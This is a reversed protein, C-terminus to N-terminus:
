IGVVLISRHDKGDLYLFYGNVFNLCFTGILSGAHSWCRASVGFSSVRELMLGGKANVSVLSAVSGDMGDTEHLIGSLKKNINSLEERIREMRNTNANMEVSSRWSMMRDLSFEM